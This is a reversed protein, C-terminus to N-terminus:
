KNKDLVSQLSKLYATSSYTAGSVMDVKASQAQLIEQRLISAVRNSLQVTHTDATPMVLAQIDTIKKGDLKVRIQVDGWRITFKQGDVWTGTANPDIPIQKWPMVTIAAQTAAAGSVGAGGVIWVAPQPAPAAPATVAALVPSNSLVSGLGVATGAMAITARRM